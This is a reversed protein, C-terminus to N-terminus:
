LLNLCSELKRNFTEKDVRLNKNPEVENLLKGTTTNWYNKITVTANKGEDLYEFSIATEYSFWITITGKKTKLTVKNKNVIGLNELKVIM